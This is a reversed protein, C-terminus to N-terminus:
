TNNKGKNTSIEVDWPFDEIKEQLNIEGNEVIPDFTTVTRPSKIKLWANRREKKTMMEVNPYFYRLKRDIKIKTAKRETDIIYKSPLWRDRMLKQRQDM